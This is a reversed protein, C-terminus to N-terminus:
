GPACEYHSGAKIQTVNFGLFETIRRIQRNLGQPLVINFTHRSNQKVQCPLTVTELIPVGSAM